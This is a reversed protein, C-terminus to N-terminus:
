HGKRFRRRGGSLDRWFCGRGQGARRHGRDFPKKEFVGMPGNWIITKATRIFQALVTDITLPGIDVGIKDDPISDVVESDANEKIESM